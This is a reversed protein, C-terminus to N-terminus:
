DGMTTDSFFTCDIPLLMIPVLADLINEIRWKSESVAAESIHLKKILIAIFSSMMVRATQALEMITAQYLLVYNQSHSCIYKNGKM